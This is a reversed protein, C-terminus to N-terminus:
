GRVFTLVLRKLTNADLVSGPRSRFAAAYYQRSEAYRGCKFLVGAMSRLREARHLPELHRLCDPMHQADFLLEVPKLGAELVKDVQQRVRAAHDHIRCVLHDVAIAPHHAIVQGIMVIDTNNRLGEPYRFRQLLARPIVSSCHQLGTLERLLFRRLRTEAGKPATVAARRRESGDPAVSVFGGYFVCTDAEPGVTDIHRAFVELADPLLEDDADLICVFRGRALAIGDNYASAQGGNERRISTIRGAYAYLREQTDDTSGDDVVVIECDDMTQDLVSDIARAVFRGYNYTAIVVSFLPEPAPTDTPMQPRFFPTSCARALLRVGGISSPCHPRAGHTVLRFM